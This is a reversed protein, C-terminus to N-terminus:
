FRHDMKEARAWERLGLQTGLEWRAATSEARCAQSEKGCCPRDRRGEEKRLGKAPVGM